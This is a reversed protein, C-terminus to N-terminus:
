AQSYKCSILKSVYPSKKFDKGRRLYVIASFTEGIRTPCDVNNGQNAKPFRTSGAIFSVKDEGHSLQYLTLSETIPKSSDTLEWSVESTEEDFATIRMERVLGSDIAEQITGYDLIIASKFVSNRPIVPVFKVIQGEQERSFRQLPAVFHRSFCDYIHIHSRQKDINDIYGVVSDFCDSIKKSSLYAEAVAFTGPKKNKERLIVDYVQGVNVYHRKGQPLQYWPNPCLNNVLCEVELGEPSVLTAFRFLRGEKNTVDKIRTVLLQTLDPLYGMKELIMVVKAKQDADLKEGPRLLCASLYARAMREALPPFAHEVNDSNQLLYDDPRLNHLNWMNLFSVFHFDKFIAAVRIAASLLASHVKSPHEIPLDMYDALLQRCFTAGIGEADSNIAKVIIWAYDTTTKADTPAVEAFLQRINQLQTLISENM